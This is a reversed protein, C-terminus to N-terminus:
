RAKSVKQRKEIRTCFDEVRKELTIAIQEITSFRVKKKNDNEIESITKRTVGSLDAMQTLTWGKEVRALKVKKGKIKLFQEHKTQKICEM